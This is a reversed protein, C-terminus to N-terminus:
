FFLFLFGETDMTRWPVSHASIRVGLPLHQWCHQDHGHSPHQLGPSFVLFPTPSAGPLASTFLSFLPLSPSDLCFAPMAGVRGEPSHSSCIGHSDSSVSRASQSIAFNVFPRNSDPLALLSVTRVAPSAGSSEKKRSPSPTLNPTCQPQLHPSPQMM